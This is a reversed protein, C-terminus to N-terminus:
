LKNIFIFIGVRFKGNEIGVHQVLRFDTPHSIQSKQLNKIKKTNM